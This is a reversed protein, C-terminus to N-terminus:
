ADRDGKMSVRLPRAGAKTYQHISEITDADVDIQNSEIVQRYAKAVAEWNTGVSDRNQKWSVSGSPVVLRTTHGMAAKLFAEWRDRETEAERVMQRAALVRDVYSAEEPTAVRESGDDRPYMRRLAEATAESGDPEPPVRDTVHQWFDAYTEALGALVEEDREIRWSRLENGEVLVALHGVNVGELALYHQVQLFYQMPIRDVDDDMWESARDTVKVEIVVPGDEPHDGTFDVHGVWHPVGALREFSGRRLRTVGNREAFEKGVPVELLNGWRMRETEEVPVGEGIKDLYVSLPSGYLGVGAVAAAESGGIGTRRQAHWRETKM